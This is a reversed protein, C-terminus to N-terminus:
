ELLTNANKSPSCYQYLTNINKDLWAGRGAIFIKLQAVSENYNSYNREMPYLYNIRDPNTKSFVYGWEENNRKVAPGLYKVTNKIYSRLYTSNLQTKRLMHYRKVVLDIFDKDKILMCFWPSNIMTFGAPDYATEIYNDCANNFDWVCLKMKGRLDKYLYTSFNGADSNRFFENIIFYDAFSNMDIYDKYQKLDYSYLTKEIKSVDHSIFDLQEESLINKGPYKVDLGSIGSQYIYKTYNDVPQKAKYARDWAIIYSTKAQLPNSKEINIRHLGQKINEIILYVGQYKGNLFLECYRVNPAYDMIEGSINYCLYNRVLTRDLFPGNLIWESEESMGALSYNVDHQYRNIFRIKFSKKDFRLSSHGRYHVLIDSKIDPIDNLTNFKETKDFVCIKARLDSGTNTDPFSTDRILGPIEKGDTDIHILPLHTSFTDSEGTPETPIPRLHQHIRDNSYSKQIINISVTFLILILITGFYKKRISM